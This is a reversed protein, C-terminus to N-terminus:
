ANNEKAKERLWKRVSYTSTHGSVETGLEYRARDALAERDSARVERDHAALWRDFEDYYVKRGRDILFQPATDSVGALHYRARVDETSPTYDSM